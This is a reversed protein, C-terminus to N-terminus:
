IDFDMDDFLKYISYGLKSDIEKKLKKAETIHYITNEHVGKRLMIEIIRQELIMRRSTCMLDSLNIIKEYITYKHREVFEKTFDYGYRDKNPIGGAVCNIDNNLYSHTLCVSAYEEDYGLELLYEYGKIAHPISDRGFGFRKGIDHVYGLIKAKEVDLKLAEAIKGATEGVCISHKIWNDDPAKGKADELLKLAKESILVM